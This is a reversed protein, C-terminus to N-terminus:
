YLGRMFRTESFDKKEMLSRYIGTDIVNSSRFVYYYLDSFSTNVRDIRGSGQEFQKFSYPLSYFIMTDTEICNWGEAGAAYQVLYVWSETVPVPEHKHGNWEAVAFSGPIEQIMSTSGLEGATATSPGSSGGTTTTESEQNMMESMWSDEGEKLERLIELEYDFNYFIIIKPNLVLLDRVRCLRSKDGNVVRRGLSFLESVHRVPRDALYNWRRKWVVHFLEEDYEVFVDTMHRTTHREFPMEVTIERLHRVLVATDLYREVKPYKTFSSFQVHNRLFETRNKYFGNAVFVPIYDLWTDGPTASLLIWQNKKSVTIFAQVWVGSGVVRQEDFIFFADQVDEYAQLNNWSDVVLDIGFLKAEAEWDGSDRKKATTIVYLKIWPALKAYYALATRTKGSGVGGKLICGNRLNGVAEAQHPYLDPQIM